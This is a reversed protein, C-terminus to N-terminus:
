TTTSLGSGRKWEKRGSNVAHELLCLMKKKGDYGILWEIKREEKISNNLSEALDNLTDPGETYLWLFATAVLPTRTRGHRCNIVVTNHMQFHQYIQAAVKRCTAITRIADAKELEEVQFERDAMGEKQIDICPYNGALGLADYKSALILCKNVGDLTFQRRASGKVIAMNCEYNEQKARCHEQTVVAEQSRSVAAIAAAPYEADGATCSMAQAAIARAAVRAHQHPDHCPTKPEPRGSSLRPSAAAHSLAQAARVRAPKRSAVRKTKTLAYMAPARTMRPIALIADRKRCYSCKESPGRRYGLCVKCLKM